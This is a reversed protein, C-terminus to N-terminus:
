QLLLQLGELLRSAIPKLHFDFKKEAGASNLKVLDQVMPAAPPRSIKSAGPSKPMPAAPAASQAGLIFTEAECVAFTECGCPSALPPTVLDVPVSFDDACTQGTEGDLFSRDAKPAQLTQM